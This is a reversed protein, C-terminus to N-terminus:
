MGWWKNELNDQVIHTNDHVLLMQLISWIIAFDKERTAYRWMRTSWMWTCCTLFDLHVGGVINMTYTIGGSKLVDCFLIKHTCVNCCCIWLFVFSSVSPISQLKWKGNIRQTAMKSRSAPTPPNKWSKRTSIQSWPSNWNFNGVPFTSMLHFTGYNKLYHCIKIIMSLETTNTSEPKCYDQGCDHKLGNSM